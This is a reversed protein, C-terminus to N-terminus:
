TCGRSTLAHRVPVIEDGDRHVHEGVFTLMDQECRESVVRASAHVCYIDTRCECHIDERSRDLGRGPHTSPQPQDGQEGSEATDVRTADM